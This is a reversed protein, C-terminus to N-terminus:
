RTSGKRGKASGKARAQSNSAKRSENSDRNTRLSSNSATHGISARAVLVSTRVGRVETLRVVRGGWSEVERRGVIADLAWDAGKALVDPRLAKIASLPTAERFLIVWDVCALAAVVEM